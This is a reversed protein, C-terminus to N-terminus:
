ILFVTITAGAGPGDIGTGAANFLFVQCVNPSTILMQAAGFTGANYIAWGFKFNTSQVVGLADTVTAPWTVTWLGVSNHFVTPIVSINNGWVAEHNFVDNNYGDAGDAAFSVVARVITRTMMSASALAANMEAASRDTTPDVVDTYDLKQGGYTAFDDKAPLTM